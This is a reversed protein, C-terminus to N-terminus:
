TPLHPGIYGVEVKQERPEVRLHIRIGSGVRAHWEYLQAFGAASRFRRANRLKPMSMTSESEPTVKTRWAPSPGEDWEHASRDLEVLKRVINGILNSNKMLHVEVEEGFQLSPFLQARRAWVIKPDNEVRLLRRHRDIILPAHSARSLSDVFAADREIEGTDDLEEFEIHILDQDWASSSPLGVAIWHNIACLLLPQADSDSLHISECALLRSKASPTLDIQIPVKQALGMLFIHTDRDTRRLTQVVNGLSEGTALQIEWLSAAMRLHKSTVRERILTAMGTALDVLYQNALQPDALAVTAHNFVM